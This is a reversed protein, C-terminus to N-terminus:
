TSKDLIEESERSVEDINTELNEITNDSEKSLSDLFGSYVKTDDETCEYLGRLHSLREDMKSESDHLAKESEDRGIIIEEGIPNKNYKHGKELSM